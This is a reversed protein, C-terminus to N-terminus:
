CGPFNLTLTEVAVEARGERANCYPSQHGNDCSVPCGWSSNLLGHCLVSRAPGHRPCAANRTPLPSCPLLPLCRLMVRSVLFAPALPCRSPVSGAAPSSLSHQLKTPRPFLQPFCPSLLSTREGGPRLGPRLAAGWWGWAGPSLVQGCGLASNGGARCADLSFVEGHILLSHLGTRAVGRMETQSLSPRNTPSGGNEGRARHSSPEELVRSGERGKFRATCVQPQKSLRHEQALFLLLDGCRGAGLLVYILNHKKKYDGERQSQNNIGIVTSSKNCLLSGDKIVPYDGLPEPAKAM